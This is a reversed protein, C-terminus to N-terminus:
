NEKTKIPTKPKVIKAEPLWPIDKPPPYLGMFGGSNMSKEIDTTYSSIFYDYKDFDFEIDTFCSLFDAQIENIAYCDIMPSNENLNWNKQLLALDIGNLDVEGILEETKKDFWEINRILWEPEKIAM